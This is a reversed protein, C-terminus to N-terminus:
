IGRLAKRKDQCRPAGSLHTQKLSFEAPAVTGISFNLYTYQGLDSRKWTELVNLLVLSNGHAIVAVQVERIGYLCVTTLVVAAVSGKCCYPGNDLFGGHSHDDSGTPEHPKM